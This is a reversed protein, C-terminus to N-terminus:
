PCQRGNFQAHIEKARRGINEEHTVYVLTVGLRECLVRKREDREKTKEFASAGGFVAVPQYHQIGMYEVALNHKPLYYDLHQPSLWLPIAHRHVEAKGFLTALAVGLQAESVWREDRRMDNFRERLFLYARHMAGIASERSSWGARDFVLPHDRLVIELWERNGSIETKGFGDGTDGLLTDDISYSTKYWQLDLIAAIVDRPEIEVPIQRIVELYDTLFDYKPYRIVPSFWRLLALRCAPSKAISETRSDLAEELVLEDAVAIGFASGAAIMEIKSADDGNALFDDLLLSVSDVLAPCQPLLDRVKRARETDGDTLLQSLSRGSSAPKPAMRKKLPTIAKDNRDLAMALEDIQATDIAFYDMLMDRLENDIGGSRLGAVVIARCMYKAQSVFYPSTGPFKRGLKEHAQARQCGDLHANQPMELEMKMERQQAYFARPPCARRFTTICEAYEDRVFHLRTLGNMGASLVFERGNAEDVCRRFHQRAQKLNGAAWYLDGARSLWDHYACCVCGPRPDCKGNSHQIRANSSRLQSEIAHNAMGAKAFFAPHDWQERFRDQIGLSVLIFYLEAPTLEDSYCIARAVFSSLTWTFGDAKLWVADSTM